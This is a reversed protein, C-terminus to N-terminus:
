GRSGGRKLLADSQGRTVASALFQAGAVAVFMVLGPVIVLWPNTSLYKQGDHIMSGWSPVPPQVGLGLYELSSEVLVITALDTVAIVLSQGAVNPLVHRRVVWWHRGGQTLPAVVFDRSRLSAAVSRCVRFYGVWWTLALTVVTVTVSPGSLAALAILLLVVPMALNVEALGSLAADVRRGAYGAIVGLVTGIVANAMVVTVTILLTVRSALSIRSLMDRGLADTGLLHDAGSFPALMPRSLDQRYPDYSPDLLPVLAVGLVVCVLTVGVWGAPSLRLRRSGRPLEAPATSLVASTTM